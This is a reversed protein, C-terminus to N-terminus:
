AGIFSVSLIAKLVEAKSAKSALYSLDLDFGDEVFRRKNKSVLSKIPNISKNKNRNGVNENMCNIKDKM